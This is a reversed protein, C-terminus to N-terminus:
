LENRCVDEPVGNDKSDFSIKNNDNKKEDKLIQYIEKFRQDIESLRQDIQSFRQDIQNFRQDMKNNTFFFLIILFFLLIFIIFLLIYVSHFRGKIEKYINNLQKYLIYDTHVELSADIDCYLYNVTSLIIIKEKLIFDTDLVDKIKSLQNVLEDNVNM